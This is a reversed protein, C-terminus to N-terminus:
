DAATVVADEYSAIEELVAQRDDEDVDFTRLADDLHTAIAQFEPPTIGMDDHVAAMEGGSYEVPGGAVSSIFQAQHARQKQMDVDDFYGAVLEDAMVRDYFEDVVAAIADEGGLREYLTREPM